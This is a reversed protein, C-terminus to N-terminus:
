AFLLIVAPIATLFYAKTLLGLGLVIGAAIGSPREELGVGM